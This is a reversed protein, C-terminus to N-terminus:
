FIINTSQDRDGHKGSIDVSKSSHWFIVFWHVKHKKCSITHRSDLASDHVLQNFAYTLHSIWKENYSCIISYFPGWLPLGLIPGCM